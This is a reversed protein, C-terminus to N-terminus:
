QFRQGLQTFDLHSLFDQCKSFLQSYVDQDSAGSHPVQLKFFIPVMRKGRTHHDMVKTAAFHIGEVNEIGARCLSPSCYTDGIFSDTVGDDYLATNFPVRHGEATPIERIGKITPLEGHTMLSTEITHDRPPLWIGIDVEEGSATAFAAVELVPSGDVQEQWTRALRYDGVQLPIRNNLDRVTIEGRQLALILSDSDTGNARVGAVGAAVALPALAMTKWFTSGRNKFHSDSRSEGNARYVVESKKSVIWLFLFAALLFLLGGIMYDAQKALHELARHGLAMKYYAVLACLRLLNFIHGLFFAGAVYIAWKLSSVRKLYGAILAGYAMTIAGRMGDCGPAVFMGFSPTFMLQLLDANGPSLGLLAAFSRAIHASLGQMPLDLFRVVVQPVPQVFLLLTLPFWARIGVRAGAFLLVIGCAYLFVPLSNPLFNVNFVGASWFFALRESFVAPVFALAIPLLGLWTGKLEWANKQWVRLILVISTPFILMGISRLPDTTWIEWLKVLVPSIGFFGAVSLLSIWSWLFLHTRTGTQKASRAGSVRSPSSQASSSDSIEPVLSTSETVSM